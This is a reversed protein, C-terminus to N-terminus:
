GNISSPNKHFLTLTVLVNFFVTQAMVKASTPQLINRTSIDILFTGAVLVYSMGNMADRSTLYFMCNQMNELNTLKTGISRLILECQNSRYKTGQCYCADILVYHLIRKWPLLIGQQLVNKIKVFLSTISRFNNGFM